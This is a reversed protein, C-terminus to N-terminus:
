VLFFWPFLPKRAVSEAVASARPLSADLRGRSKKLRTEATTQFRVRWGADGPARALPVRRPPAMVGGPDLPPIAGRPRFTRPLCLSLAGLRRAVVVDLEEVRLTDVIRLERLKQLEQDLAVFVPQGAGGPM